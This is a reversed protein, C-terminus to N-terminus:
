PPSGTPPLARDSLAWQFDLLLLSQFIPDQPKLLTLLGPDDSSLQYQAFPTMGLGGRPWAARQHCNRCNTQVPHSVLEIYPNFHAPLQSPAGLYPIGYESVMLYNRWTTPSQSPPIDPRDSAFPGADAKDHWWFSQMTWTPMEKTLIHTAISVVSDGARFERQYAWWASADLLARDKPGLASLDSQTFPQHYFDTLPVVEADNFTIQIGPGGPFVVLAM